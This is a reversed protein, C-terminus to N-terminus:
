LKGTDLEWFLDFRQMSLYVYLCVSVSIQSEIGLSVREILTVVSIFPLSIHTHFPPRPILIRNNMEM